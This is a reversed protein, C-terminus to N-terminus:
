GFIVQHMIRGPLLTFVGAGILALFFLQRMTARHQAINGRRAARVGTTISVLTYLSLLHILSFPGFHRLDHIWFSSMAILAMLSVWIYGTIRHLRQGKKLLLQAIGLMLAAFAALAHVVIVSSSQFLPVFSM